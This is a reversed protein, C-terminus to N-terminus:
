RKVYATLFDPYASVGLFVVQIGGVRGADYAIVTPLWLAYVSLANKTVLNQADRWLQVARPDTSSLASLETIMSTLKPDEYGCLDGLHGPTYIFQLADLGSRVVSAAGMDAKNDTFLDQVINASSKIEVDIGAKKWNQQAIEALQM